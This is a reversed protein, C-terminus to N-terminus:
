PSPVPTAVFLDGLVSRRNLALRGTSFPGIAATTYWFGSMAPHPSSNNM